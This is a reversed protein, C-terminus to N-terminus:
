SAPRAEQLIKVEKLIELMVSLVREGMYYKHIIIM